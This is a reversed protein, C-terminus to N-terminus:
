PRIADLRFRVLGGDTAVWLYERDVALDNSNGPLDGERLPRIPPTTLRAFAVGRDGAVWFGPGDATFAVLGGLLGSLNPGLTWAGTGPDRWLMEDRTLAVVTDGLSGLAVVPAQLSPSALAAPRVVDPQGPLALLLGRQTGVWVSDGTPFVALVADAFRPALREIRLSDTVRVLGHGTGATIRGRRSVVAYVRGDPLGRAEDLLEVRGDGTAIRALGQDTAAWLATGQGALKRVQTFPLGSAPLGELTRFADLASDVFTLTADTQTTRDTAAWVGGPWGFVAGVVPSRLGYSLRDPLAAGDPLYLLGVGWTGIYWGLNDVSRAAATFRAQNLRPDMLIRAANTQLTPNSRLVDDIRAPMIPRAPPRAPSAILGGRPLLLWGSRTRLYLGTTPDDGDFAIMQVGEPVPGQDWLQLEPQFHVWGEPRALWLSNDLPDVLGAFVRALLAPDPPDYPGRWQRFQPNWILAASTSTVYVRDIATAVATIHSFDGIVARDEPRWDRTPSQAGAPRAIGALAAALASALVLAPVLPRM